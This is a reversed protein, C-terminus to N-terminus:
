VKNEQGKLLRRINKKHRYAIFLGIIGLVITYESPYGFLFLLIPTLICGTLSTLSVLKTFYLLAVSIPALILFIKPSLALLVGLSTAVGKGGKFKNFISLSHGVIALAGVLLHLFPYPLIKLALYTPIFGKLADLTFVLLAYKLGLARYINTAGLNGSGIKTLDIKKLKSILLAFSISGLFYASICLLITTATLNNLM